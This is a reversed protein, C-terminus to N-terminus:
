KIIMKKVKLIRALSTVICLITLILFGFDLVNWGHYEKKIFSFVVTTVFIIILREAREGWGISLENTGVGQVELVAEGKSKTYSVMFSMLLSAVGLIPNLAGSAILGIFVLGETVRDVVADLYGGFPTIKHTVRAVAGDVLDIIFLILSFAGWLFFGRAFLIAPILALFLGGITIMNPNLHHAVPSLLRETYKNIFPKIRSIM